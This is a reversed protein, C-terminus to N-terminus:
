LEFGINLFFGDADINGEFDDIDDVELAFARYGLETVLDVGLTGTAYGISATLDTLENGDYGIGNFAAGVYLGTLPLDFRASGYVLPLWADFEVSETTSTTTSEVSAGGDFYRATLGLDLKVWNNLPSYFFTLDTHTLDLETEVNESASYTTDDIVLTATLTGRASTDMNIHQFRINPVGPVPYKLTASLMTHDDDRLGLDDFNATDNDKGIEGSYDPQWQGVMVNFDILPVSYASASAMTLAAAILNLSKKM